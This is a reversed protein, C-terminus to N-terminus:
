LEFSFVMDWQRCVYWILRQQVFGYEAYEGVCFICNKEFVLSGTDGHSLRPSKRDPFRFSAVLKEFLTPSDRHQTQLSHDYSLTESLFWQSGSLATQSVGELVLGYVQHTFTASFGHPSYKFHVRNHIIRDKVRSARLPPPPTLSVVTLLKPM